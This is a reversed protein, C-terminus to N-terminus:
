AEGGPWHKTTDHMYGGAVVPPEIPEGAYEECVVPRWREALLDARIQDRDDNARILDALAEGTEELMAATTFADDATISTAPEESDAWAKLRAVMAAIRRWNFGQLYNM